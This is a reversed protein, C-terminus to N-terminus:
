ARKKGRLVELTTQEQEKAETEEAEAEPIADVLKQLGLMYSKWLAEYAKMKPNERIGKQGGGNDYEVTLGEEGITERADDLKASMWAVNAITSDMIKLVEDTIGSQKLIRKIRNQETKARKKVEKEM